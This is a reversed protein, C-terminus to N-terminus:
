NKARVHSPEGPEEHLSLRLHAVRIIEERERGAVEAAMMPAVVAQTVRKLGLRECADVLTRRAHSEGSPQVGRKEQSLLRDESPLLADPRVESEQGMRLWAVRSQRCSTLSDMSGVRIVMYVQEDFM